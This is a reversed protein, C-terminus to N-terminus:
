LELRLDSSSQRYRCVTFTRVLYAGTREMSSPVASLGFHIPLSTVLSPRLCDRVHVRLSIRLVLRRMCDLAARVLGPNGDSASTIRTCSMRLGGMCPCDEAAGVDIFSGWLIDWGGSIGRFSSYWRFGGSGGSTCVGRGNSCLRGGM